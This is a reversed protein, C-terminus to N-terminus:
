KCLEMNMGIRRLGQEVARSVPDPLSPLESIRHLVGFGDKDAIFRSAMDVLMLMTFPQQGFRRILDTQQKEIFCLPIQPCSPNFCALRFLHICDSVRFAPSLMVGALVNYVDEPDSSWALQGLDSWVEPSYDRNQLHAVHTSKSYLALIIKHSEPPIATRAPINKFHTISWMIDQRLFAELGSILVELSRMSPLPIDEPEEIGAAPDVTLEVEHGVRVLTSIIEEDHCAVALLRILLCFTTRFEPKTDCLDFFSEPDTVARALMSRACRRVSEVHFSNGANFTFAVDSLRHVIEYGIMENSETVGIRELMGSFPDVKILGCRLAHTLSTLASLRQGVDLDVWEEVIREMTLLPYEVRCYAAARDDLVPIAHKGTHAIIAIREADCSALFGEGSATSFRLAEDIFIPYASPDGVTEVLLPVLRNGFSERVHVYMISILSYQAPDKGAELLFSDIVDEVGAVTNEDCDAIPVVSAAVTPFLPLNIHDHILKTIIQAPIEPHRLKTLYSILTESTVDSFMNDSLYASLARIFPNHGATAPFLGAIMHFLAAGKTYVLDDYFADNQCIEAGVVTVYAGERREVRVDPTLGLTFPPCATEKALGADIVDIYFKAALDPLQRELSHARNFEEFCDAMVKYQFFRAPGEALFTEHARAHGVGQGFYQHIIEHAVTSFLTPLRATTKRFLICGFNEFASVPFEPLFVIDLKPIPFEVGFLDELYQIVVIAWDALLDTTQSARPSMVAVPVKTQRLSRTHVRNVVVLALSGPRMPPSEAFVVTTETKHHISRTPMNSVTHYLHPITVKLSIPARAGTSCPFIAPAFTPAAQLVFAPEELWETSYAATMDTNVAVKFAVTLRHLSQHTREPDIILRDPTVTFPLDTIGHFVNLVTKVSCDLIIPHSTNEAFTYECSAAVIGSQYTTTDIKLAYSAVPTIPPEESM